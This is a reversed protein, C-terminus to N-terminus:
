WLTEQSIARGAVVRPRIVYRAFTKDEVTVSETVIEEDDRILGRSRDRADAIRAALRFSGVVDLAELPTLGQDGRERLLAVIREAQTGTTM